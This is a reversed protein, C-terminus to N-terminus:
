AKHGGVQQNRERMTAGEEFNIGRLIANKGYRHKIKLIAKQRNSEKKLEKEHKVPDDFLNFQMPHPKVADYRVHNAVVYIRRVSLEPNVIKDFLESSKKSITKFSANYYDLNVTGHAHKPITRGYYDKQTEGSYKKMTSIDYVVTLVIQDTVLNKNVLDLVLADVMELMINRAKNFDYPESLVQGLSVSHNEAVYSKIDKMEVPEYGWAHDILLEANKGFTVYLKDSGTLSYRALEGMTHIGLNFLRKKYGHGIRWFDTIPQYDWLKERYSKENLEAIRVGNKDPKMHKAEIDMAIKALYMNSGIGATATIGTQKLVENIMMKALEHATVQYNKLYSTADIFVEDVSYVHMDQTAVFSAYIEFIKASIEMYKRMRPKAIIFSGRPAKKYVEYLRARGPIGLEKLAPSVALCITKDTRSEDAVVLRAKLPDLGREVCEVSAYFSKLDIAIYVKKMYINYM